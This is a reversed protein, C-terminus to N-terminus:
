KFLIVGVLLFIIGITKKFDLIENNMIYGMTVGTLISFVNLLVITLGINYIRTAYLLISIGIFQIISCLLIINFTYSFPKVKFINIVKKNLVFLMFFSICFCIIGLYMSRLLVYDLTTVNNPLYRILVDGSVFLIGSLSPLLFHLM